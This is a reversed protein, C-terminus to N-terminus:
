TNIMNKDVNQGSAVIDAVTNEMIEESELDNKIEEKRLKIVKDSDGNEIYIEDKSKKTSKIESQEYLLEDFPSTKIIFKPKSFSLNRDEVEDYMDNEKLLIKFWLQMSKIINDVYLEIKNESPLNLQMIVRSSDINLKELLTPTILGAKSYLDDRAIIFESFMSDLANKIQVDILQGQKGEKLAEQTTTIGLFGAPTRRSGAELFSDILALVPYGLNLNVQRVNSLISVLLLSPDIYHSAPIESFEDRQKKYGKIHILPFDYQYSERNEITYTNYLINGDDDLQRKGQNDMHPDYIVKRGKQFVIIRERSNTIKTGSDTYNPELDEVTERYIYSQPRNYSDLLVRYMNGSDLVRLKPIKDLGDEFYIELFEDGTSELTDYTENLICKWDIDNLSNKILERKKDNRTFVNFLDPCYSVLKKIVSDMFNYDIYLKKLEEDTVLIKGNEDVQNEELVFKSKFFAYSDGKRMKNITNIEIQRETKDSNNLLYTHTYASINIV